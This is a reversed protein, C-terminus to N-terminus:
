PNKKPFITSLLDLFPAKIKVWLTVGREVRDLTGDFAGAPDALTADGVKTTLRQVWAALQIAVDGILALLAFNGESRKIGFWGGSAVVDPGWIIAIISAVLWGYFSAKFPLKPNIFRVVFAGFAAALWNGVNVDPRFYNFLWEGISVALIMYLYLLRTVNTM